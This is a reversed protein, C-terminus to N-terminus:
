RGAIGSIAFIQRSILISASPHLRLRLIELDALISYIRTYYYTSYIINQRLAGYWQIILAVAAGPSEFVM